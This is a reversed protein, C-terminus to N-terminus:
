YVLLKRAGKVCLALEELREANLAAMGACATGSSRRM